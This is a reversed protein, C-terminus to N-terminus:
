CGEPMHKPAVYGIAGHLRMRTATSSRAAAPRRADGLSLPTDPRATATLDCTNGFGSAGPTSTLSCGGRVSSNRSAGPCLRALAADAM